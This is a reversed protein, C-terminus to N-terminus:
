KRFGKPFAVPYCSIRDILGFIEPIFELREDPVPLHGAASWTKILIEGSSRRWRELPKENLQGWGRRSGECTRGSAEWHISLM